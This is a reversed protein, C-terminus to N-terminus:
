GQLERAHPSGDRPDWADNQDPGTRPTMLVETGDM